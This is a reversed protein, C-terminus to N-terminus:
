PAQPAPNNRQDGMFNGSGPDIWAKINMLTLTVTAQDEYECSSNCDVVQIKNWLKISQGAHLDVSDLILDDDNNLDAAAVWGQTPPSSAGTSGYAYWTAISQNVGGEGLYALNAFGEYDILVDNNSKMWFTICDAAYTGPKRVRWDWRTGTASWEIWQAVSVHNTVDIVWNQRNCQGSAGGSTWARAKASPSPLGNVYMSEWGNDVLEWAETEAAGAPLPVGPNYTRQAQAAAPILLITMLALIVIVRKM